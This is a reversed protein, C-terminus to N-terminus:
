SKSRALDILNQAEYLAEELQNDSPDLSDPALTRDAFIHPTVGRGSYPQGGPGCFRAVTIRLGGPYVVGPQPCLRLLGQLCGKGFSPQGVLRARKHEKLAGAVVEAASATDGDILIVLPLGVANPNRAYYVTDLKPDQNQTSVIVGSSLFRRAVEVAAELQGGGNGRLDLVLAKAELKALTQLATDIEQPTTEQFAGIQVYGIFGRKLHATGVSPIFNARRRQTLERPGFMASHVEVKVETGAEGQLLALATEPLLRSAPKRDISVLVDGPLLAPKVDAAPSASLVEVIVLRGDQAALRLGVGAQEGRLSDCLERLQTPTLFMTYDDIAYCAGCTFEMVSTTANLNLRTLAEIAVERVLNVAQQPTKVARIRVDWGARLWARFAEVEGPTADPLNLQLFVPDLLAYRLEELGKRFLRAANVEHKAVSGEQLSTFVFEYVKLAQPYGQTLVEKRYSDDKQRFAQFYRRLCHVFRARTEHRNRDLRLLLDYAECAKEWDAVKEFQEAQDRLAKINKGTPGARSTDALCLAGGLLLTGVALPWAAPGSSRRASAL